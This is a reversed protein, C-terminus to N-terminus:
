NEWDNFRKHLEMRKNIDLGKKNKSMLDEM